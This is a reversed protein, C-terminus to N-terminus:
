SKLQHRCFVVANWRRFESIIEGNDDKEELQQIVQLKTGHQGQAVQKDQAIWRKYTFWDKYPECKSCISCLIAANIASFHEFSCAEKSTM